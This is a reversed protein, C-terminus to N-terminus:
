IGRILLHDRPAQFLFKEDYNIKIIIIIIFFNINNINYIKNNNQIVYHAENNM